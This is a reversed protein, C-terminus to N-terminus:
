LVRSSMAFDANANGLFLTSKPSLAPYLHSKLIPPSCTSAKNEDILKQAKEAANAMAEPSPGSFLRKFFSMHQHNPLRPRSSPSALAFTNYTSPFTTTSTNIVFKSTSSYPRLFSSFTPRPTAPSSTVSSAILGTHRTRTNAATTTTTTTVQLGKSLAAVGRLSSHTSQFRM